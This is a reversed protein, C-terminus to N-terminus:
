LKFDFSSSFPKEIFPEPESSPMPQPSENLDNFQVQCKVGAPIAYDPNPLELRVGFTGSAADGIPDVVKVDASLTKAQNLEPTIIAPMGTKIKGFLTMPLIVEVYIPDLQAIRIIPQEEIYEGPRKLINVVIGDIPSHIKRRKLSAQARKLQLQRQAVLDKADQLRWKALEAERKAKDNIDASVMKKGHLSEIRELSRKDYTMNVERLKIVADMDAQVKAIELDVLEVESDLQALLQNKFVRDSRGVLLKELVGPEATSVDVTASPIIVCDYTHITETANGYLPLSCLWM